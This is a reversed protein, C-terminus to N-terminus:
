AAPTARMADHVVRHVFHLKTVATASLVFPCFDGEGLRRSLGNLVATLEIL